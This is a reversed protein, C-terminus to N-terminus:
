RARERLVSICAVSLWLVWCATALWALPYGNTAASIATLILAIWGVLQSM